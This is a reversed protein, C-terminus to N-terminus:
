QKLRVISREKRKWENNEALAIELGSTFTNDHCGKLKLEGKLKSVSIVHGPYCDLYENVAQKVTEKKNPDKTLYIGKWNEWRLNPMIQTLYDKVKDNSIILYVDSKCAAGNILKRSSGRSIAQYLCHSLESALVESLISDDIDATLNDSEGAIQATLDRLSRYLVGAFIVNSCYSYQNLATEQGWTLFAIRPMRKGNNLQIVADTDIDRKNMDKKLIEIHNVQDSNRTKFTFILIGEQKPIDKVVNAVELSFLRERLKPKTQIRTFYDRGSRHKLHHVTVNSYYVSAQDLDLYPSDENADNISKVNAHALMRISYSADLVLINEIESPVKMEYSIVAKKDDRADYYVRFKNQSINLFKKLPEVNVPCDGVKDLNKQYREIDNVYLKPMSLIEAKEKGQAQAISEENLIKICESLYEVIPKLISKRQVWVGLGQLAAQIKLFDLGISDAVFLSEDWIVLNRPQEKFFALQWSEIGGKVRQHTMLLVRESRPNKSSPMSAFGQPLESKKNMFDEAFKQDYQYSHFLGIFDDPVNESILQRKILCLEEVKTACVALSIDKIGSQYLQYIWATISQTKGFGTPLPIAYRGQVKGQAMDTYARLTGYLVQEQGLSLTNGFKVLNRKLHEFAPTTILGTLDMPAKGM